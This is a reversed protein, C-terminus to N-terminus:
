RQLNAKLGAIKERKRRRLEGEPCAHCHCCEAGWQCSGPKYFWACPKCEGSAHLAAGVSPLGSVEGDATPEPDPKATPMSSIAPRAKSPISACAEETVLGDAFFSSSQLDYYPLEM